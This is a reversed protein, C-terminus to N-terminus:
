KVSFRLFFKLSGNRLNKFKILIEIIKIILVKIIEMLKQLEQKILEEKLKCTESM